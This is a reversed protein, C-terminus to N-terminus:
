LLHKLHKVLQYFFHNFSQAMGGHTWFCTNFRIFLSYSVRSPTQCGMSSSQYSRVTKSILMHALNASNTSDSDIWADLIDSSQMFILPLLYDRIFIAYKSKKIKCDSITQNRRTTTQSIESWRVNHMSIIWVGTQCSKFAWLVYVFQNWYAFQFSYLGASCYM